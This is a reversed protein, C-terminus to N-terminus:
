YRCGFFSYGLRCKWQYRCKGASTYQWAIAYKEPSYQEQMEGNNTGYRAIWFPYNKLASVDLVNKYWDLNCYIGVQYGAAQIIEAESNIIETLRNKGIDKITKEEVDLWVRFRIQKGALVKVIANAETKAEEVTKAYVYRYVGVVIGQETAGAYNREFAEEVQNNKNTVKLIAFSINDEKVKGWDILGNWKAVDIGYKM